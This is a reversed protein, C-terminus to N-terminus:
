STNIPYRRKKYRSENFTFKYKKRIKDQYASLDIYSLNKPPKSVYNTLHFYLRKTPENLFINVNDKIEDYVYSEEILKDYEERTMDKFRTYNKLQCEKRNWQPCINICDVKNNILFIKKDYTIILCFKQQYIYFSNEGLKFWINEDSDVIEDSYIDETKPESTIPIETIPVIKTYDPDFICKKKKENEFKYGDKCSTCKHDYYDGKENCTKCYPYCPYYIKVPIEETRNDGDKIIIEREYFGTQNLEENLRCKETGYVFSYGEKCLHCFDKYKYIDVQTSTCNENPTLNKYCNNYKNDEELYNPFHYGDKCKSCKQRNESGYAYCTECAEYCEDWYGETENLYYNTENKTDIIDELKKYCHFSEKNLDEKLPYYKNNCIKCLGTDTDVVLCEEPIKICNGEKNKYMNEDQCISCKNKLLIKGNLCDNSCVGKDINSIKNNNEKNLECSSYCKKTIIELFPFNNNCQLLCVKNNNYPQVGNDCSSVCEFSNESYAFMLAPNNEDCRKEFCNFYEDEPNERLFYPVYKKCETCFQKIENTINNTIPKDSCSICNDHCKIFHDPAVQHYGEKLDDIDVCNSKDDDIYAFGEKCEDCNNNESDGGKSCKKCTHYCDNYIPIDTTDDKDQIYYPGNELKKEPLCLNTNKYYAYFEQCECITIRPEKYFGKNTDCICQDYTDSEEDTDKIISEIQSTDCQQCKYVKKINDEICKSCYPITCIEDPEEFTTIDSVIDSEKEPQIPDFPFFKIQFFCKNSSLNNVKYPDSNDLNFLRYKLHFPKSFFPVYRPLIREFRIHSINKYIINPKPYEYNTKGILKIQHFLLGLYDKEIPYFMIGVNRFSKLRPDSYIDYVIVEFSLYFNIKHIGFGHISDLENLCQPMEIVTPNYSIEGNSNLCSLLLSIDNQYKYHYQNYNNVIEQDNSNYKILNTFYTTQM